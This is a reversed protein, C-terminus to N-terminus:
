LYANIANIRSQNTAIENSINITSSNIILNRLDDISAKVEKNTPHENKIELKKQEIENMKNLYTQINNNIRSKVTQIKELEKNCKGLEEKLRKLERKEDDTVQCGNERITPMLDDFKKSLENLHNTLDNSMDNYKKSLDKAKKLQMETNLKDFDALALNVERDLTDWGLYCGLIFSSVTIIGLIVPIILPVPKATAAPVTVSTLLLIVSRFLM